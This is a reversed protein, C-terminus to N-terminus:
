DVPDRISQQLNNVFYSSSKRSRIHKSTGPVFRDTIDGISEADSSGSPDNGSNSNSDNFTPNNYGANIWDGTAGIFESGTNDISNRSSGGGEMNLAVFGDRPGAPAQLVGPNGDLMREMSWDLGIAGGGSVVGMATATQTLAPPGGLVASAGALAANAGTAGTLAFYQSETDSVAAAPGLLKLKNKLRKGYLAATAAGIAMAGIGLVLELMRGSPDTSNIPDGACYAYSNMGGVGFPSLRDASHFRMLTPNYVRRGNGLMYWGTESERLQGTFATHSQMGQPGRSRYGYPTYFARGAADAGVELLPSALRDTALLLSTSSRRNMLATM